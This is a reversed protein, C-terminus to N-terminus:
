LWKKEVGVDGRNDRINNEIWFIIQQVEGNKRSIKKIRVLGM